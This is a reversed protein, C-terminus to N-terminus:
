SLSARKNLRTHRITRAKLWGSVQAYWARGPQVPDSTEAGRQERAVRALAIERELEKVKEQHIMYVFEPSVLSFM